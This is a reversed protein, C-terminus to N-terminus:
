LAPDSPEYWLSTMPSCMTWGPSSYLARGEPTGVLVGTRAGAEYATSQLTRM